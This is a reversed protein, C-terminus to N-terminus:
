ERGEFMEPYHKRVLDAVTRQVPKLVRRLASDVHQPRSKVGYLRNLWRSVKSCGKYCKRGDVVVCVLEPKVDDVVAPDDKRKM